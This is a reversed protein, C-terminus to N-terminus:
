GSGSQLRPGPVPAEERPQHLLDDEGVPLGQADYVAAGGELLATRHVRYHHACFLLEVPAGEDGTPM